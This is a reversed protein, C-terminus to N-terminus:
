AVGRCQEAQEAQRSRKECARQLSEMRSEIDQAFQAMERLLHLCESIEMDMQFDRAQQRKKLELIVRFLDHDGDAEAGLFGLLVRVRKRTLIVWDRCTRWLEWAGDVTDYKAEFSQNLENLSVVNASLGQQWEEITGDVQVAAFSLNTDMEDIHQELEEARDRAEGHQKEVQRKVAQISGVTVEGYKM